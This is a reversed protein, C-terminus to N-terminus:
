SQITLVAVRNQLLTKQRPPTFAFDRDYVFGDGKINTKPNMRETFYAMCSYDSCFSESHNRSIM